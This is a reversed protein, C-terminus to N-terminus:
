VTAICRNVVLIHTRTISASPCFHVSAADSAAGQSDRQNHAARGILTLFLRSLCVSLRVSTHWVTVNRKGSDNDDDKIVCSHLLRLVCVGCM